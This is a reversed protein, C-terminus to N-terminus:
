AAEQVAQAIASDIAKRDDDSIAPRNAFDVEARRRDVDYSPSNPDLNYYFDIPDKDGSIVKNVDNKAIKNETKIEDAKLFNFNLISAVILFIYIFKM